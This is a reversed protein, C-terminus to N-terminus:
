QKRRQLGLEKRYRKVSSESIALRLAIVKVTLGELSLKKVNELNEAYIPPLTQMHDIPVSQGPIDGDHLLRFRAADNEVNSLEPKVIATTQKALANSNKTLVIALDYANDFALSIVGIFAKTKGSQVKGLLMLPNQGIESFKSVSEEICKKQADSYEASKESYFVGNLKMVLGWM